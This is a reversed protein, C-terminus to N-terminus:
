CRPCNMELITADAAHKMWWQWWKTDDSLPFFFFFCQCPIFLRLGSLSWLVGSFSAVWFSWCPGNRDNHWDYIFAVWAFDQNGLDAMDTRALKRCLSCSCLVVLVNTNPTNIARWTWTLQRLNVLLVGHVFFASVATEVAKAPIGDLFNKLITVYRASVCSYWFRNGTCWAHLLYVTANM